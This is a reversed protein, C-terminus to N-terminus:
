SKGDASPLVDNKGDKTLSSSDLHKIKFAISTYDFPKKISVIGIEHYM